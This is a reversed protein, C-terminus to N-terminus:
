KVAMKIVKPNQLLKGFKVKNGSMLSRIVYYNLDTGFIEDTVLNGIRNIMADPVSNDKSFHLSYNTVRTALTSAIDARYDSNKGITSKLLGVVYKEDKNLIDEPSILKDLKNHIFLSFATTFEPGVSGEGINQILGLRDEFVPISSIANFFTTIARANVSQNVYEPHLLLFNICRSDIKVSEAWRAWVKIDFKLNVTIFRTRQAIDMSSVTYDGNDPNSTLIIHWDEPLKWSIYKGTEILTMTAQIFRTDARSYDDLILIGGKEKGVIWEPPCYSMQKNGTFSYGKHIYDETAPEDVFICKGDKCLEFQRVPFGVLDGIEEIEALNLRVCDLGLEDAM